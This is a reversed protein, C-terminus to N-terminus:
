SSVGKAMPRSTMLLGYPVLAVLAVVWKVVLDGVAWTMWPTDTGYFSLSFFLATDLISSLFSSLLPAIWWIQQRLRDFVTVDFLQAVLFATGSALAIRPNAFYLSAIVGVAFGILVVIQANRAGMRRNTLDTVLFALPYTLAGWVLWDNIPIEVLINSAVIILAMLTVPLGLSRVFQM